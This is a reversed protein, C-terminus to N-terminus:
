NAGFYTKLLDLHRAVNVISKRRAQGTKYREIAQALTIGAAAAPRKEEVKLQFAALATEADEKSWETKFVRVQKGADDVTVYGWAKRKTRQGPVRWSRQRVKAMM